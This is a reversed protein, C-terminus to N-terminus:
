TAPRDRGCAPCDPNRLLQIETFSSDLADFVLLRGALSEGIGLLLKLTELAQLTGLVGPVVGLVGAISCDTELEPPPPTPYLCRYCPGSGPLFVTLQGEFRFVSAHVVPIGAAVAADNLLYRTEFSDTGDVIVQYGDIVRRVNSGELREDHEVVTVDPNLAQIAARASETKRTGVRDTTHVIQRQLNSLEVADFDAIGITGVGAASLYLAVPAGLGGAGVVLVRSALLKQQGEVGIEPMLLHRSYRVQQERRLGTAETWPLGQARWADCGGSMSAVNAYGLQELTRAAVLSRVGEACYTVIPRDRDPVTLQGSAHLLGRPIFVAGPIMGQARESEERVDILVTEPHAALQREVEHPTLERVAPHVHRMGADPTAMGEITARIDFVPASATAAGAKPVHPQALSRSVGDCGDSRCGPPKVARALTRITAPHPYM